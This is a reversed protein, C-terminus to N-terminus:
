KVKELKLFLFGAITLYFSTLLLIVTYGWYKSSNSGTVGNFADLLVGAIPAAVLQPFVLSIHWIGMDRAVHDHSPLVDFVVAYDIGLFVGMGIGFFLMFSLVVWYNTIWAVVFTVVAMLLASSILLVKRRRGLRDSLSGVLLSSFAAGIMTPLFLLSTRTSASPISDTKLVDTVWYLMYEQVTFVGFQVLLRTVFVWFFDNEKFSSLSATIHRWLKVLVNSKEKIGQEEDNEEEEEVAIQQPETFFILTCCGTVFVVGSTVYYVNSMGITDTTASIGAGVGYGIITLAGMVGSVTGVNARDCSDPILANLATMFFVGGLTLFLFNVVVMAMGVGVTLGCIVLFVTQICTGALLYPKRRGYSSKSKDSFYGVIPPGLMAIIGGAATLGGLARGKEQSGVLNEVEQPLLISLYVLSISSAGVQGVLMLSLKLLHITSLEGGVSSLDDEKEEDDDVTMMKKEEFGDDFLSAEYEILSQKESYSKGGKYLSSREEFSPAGPDM